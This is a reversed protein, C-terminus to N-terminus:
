AAGVYRWAAEITKEDVDAVIIVDGIARPLILRVRGDAVKKDYRMTSLLQGADVPQALRTPLGFSQVTSEIRQQDHEALMGRDRSVFAAACLGIAVAEGHRLDLDHIPEIAHAFTHGLNLVARRGAEREDECVIAVKVAASTHILATLANRDRRMVAERLEDLHDLEGAIIGHKISEAMGCRFDREDLTQLTEPDSLVLQPQHFAGILNKGLAAHPLDLNVATKGGIAADVMALLTTPVHILPLGRLFTAAGFGALDGVLGGGMAIVPSTRELPAALMANYMMRAVDLSKQREDAELEVIVLDYGANTLSEAARKGHTQVIRRDVALMAKEHPALDRARRGLEALAGPEIVIEYSHTPLTVDLTPM